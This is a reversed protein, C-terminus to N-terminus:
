ELHITPGDAELDHRQLIGLSKGTIMNAQFGGHISPHHRRFPQCPCPLLLLHLSIEPALDHAQAIAVQAYRQSCIRWCRDACQFQDHAFELAHGTEIRIVLRANHWIISQQLFIWILEPQGQPKYL